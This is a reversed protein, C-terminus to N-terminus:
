PKVIAECERCRTGRWLRDSWDVEPNPRYASAVPHPFGSKAPELAADIDFAHIVLDAQGETSEPGHEQTMEEAIKWNVM